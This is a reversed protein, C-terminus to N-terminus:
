PGVPPPSGGPKGSLWAELQEGGASPPGLSVLEIGGAFPRGGAYWNGWRWPSRRLEACGPGRHRITQDLGDTGRLRVTLEDGSITLAVVYREGPSLRVPSGLPQFSKGDGLACFYRPEPGAERELTLGHFDPTLCSFVTAHDVPVPGPTLRVVAQFPADNPLFEIRRVPRDDLGRTPGPATPPEGDRFERWLLQGTGADAVEVQAANAVAARDAEGWAAGPGLTRRGIRPFAGGTAGLGTARLDRVFFAVERPDGPVGPRRAAPQDTTLRLLNWGPRLKLPLSEVRYPLNPRLAVALPPCGRGSLRLERATLSSVEFSLTALAEGATKSRTPDLFLALTADGQTWVQPTGPDDYEVSWWGTQLSLNATEPVAAPSERSSTGLPVFGLEGGASAVTPHEAAAALGALLADGHDPYAARSVVVGGFGRRRLEAVMEAAPLRACREQWADRYDGAMNGYSYRLSSEPRTLYLMLPLYPDERLKPTSEPFDSTPLNFVMGGRGVEREMGAVFDGYARWDAGLKADLAAPRRAPLDVSGALLPVAALALRGARPWGRTLRTFRDTLFLLVLTLIVVSFRDAGRLFSVGTLLSGMGLVGGVSGLAVIWAAPAGYKRAAASLGGGRAALDRFVMGALWLAGAAGVVGLFAMPYEGNIVRERAYTQARATLFPVDWHLPLLLDLPKLAYLEVDMYSRRASLAGRHHVWHDLLTDAQMTAFAACAVAAVLVPGGVKGGSRGPRSAQALAALGLFQVLIFTYYPNQLGTVVAVALGTWLRRRNKMLGRASFAYCAVLWGLPVQWAYALIIHGLGRLFIFYSLGFVLAFVASPLRPKGLARCALFFAAAALAHGLMVAAGTAAPLGVWRSLVGTGWYLGEETIPWSNWDAGFPAGLRAASKFGGPPFEGEAAAEVFSMVLSTDGGYFIPAQWAAPTLRDYTWAWVLAAALGLAFALGVDRGRRRWGPSLPRLNM